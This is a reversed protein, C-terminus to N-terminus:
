KRPTELPATVHPHRRRALIQQPAESQLLQGEHMVASRDAMILAETMDHTVMVTLGWTKQLTKFESQLVDRTVPDLAGFPEDM